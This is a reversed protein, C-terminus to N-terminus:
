TVVSVILQKGTKGISWDFGGLKISPNDLNEHNIKISQCRVLNKEM